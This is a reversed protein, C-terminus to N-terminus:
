ASFCLQRAIVARAVEVVPRDLLMAQCRLLAVADEAGVGLQAIVMGAAQHVEVPEFLGARFMSNWPLEHDDFVPRM